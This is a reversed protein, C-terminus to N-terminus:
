GSQRAHVAGFQARLSAIQSEVSADWEAIQRKTTPESLMVKIGGAAMQADAETTAGVRELVEALDALTTPNGRCVLQVGEGREMAAAIILRDHLAKRDFASPAGVLAEALRMAHEVIAQTMAPRCEDLLRDLGEVKEQLADALAILPQDLRAKADAQATTWGDRYGTEWAAALAQRHQDAHAEREARDAAERAVAARSAAAAADEAAPKQPRAQVPEFRIM